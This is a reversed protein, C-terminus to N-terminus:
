ITIFPSNCGKGKGDYGFSTADSANEGCFSFLWTAGNLVDCCLSAYMVIWQLGNCQNNDPFRIVYVRLGIMHRRVAGFDSLPRADIHADNGVSLPTIMLLYSVSWMWNMLMLLVYRVYLSCCLQFWCLVVLSWVGSWRWWEVWLNFPFIEIFFLWDQIKGSAAPLCDSLYVSLCCM